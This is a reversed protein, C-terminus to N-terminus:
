RPHPVRDNEKKLLNPVYIGQPYHDQGFRLCAATALWSIFQHGAGCQIDYTRTVFESEKVHVKVCINQKQKREPSKSNDVM